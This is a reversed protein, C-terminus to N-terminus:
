VPQRPPVSRAAPASIGPAATWSQVAGEREYREFEDLPMAASNRTDGDQWSVTADQDTKEIEVPGLPIVAVPGDGNRYQVEGVVRANPQNMAESIWSCLFHRGGGV